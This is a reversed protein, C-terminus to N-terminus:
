IILHKEFEWASRVMDDITLTAEWGLATKAKEVEAYLVPADGKRRKGIVFPVKVGNAKEFAVILELVSTGNGTGLNFVEFYSRQENQLLRKCAAVHAKALDVVHIYDRISTGDATPYDNGFITLLPQKGKVTQTIYPMLNNPTGSPSEGILGSTHAGVPNFYRLAIANIGSAAAVKECIEEGMQKTSGYASLAKQLPSTETVPLVSPNGYVTASSSFVFGKINVSEMCGLVNMLSLLNNHFYKLPKKVSEGVAKHAAFHIVADIQMEKEFLKELAKKECVDICYFMPRQGTITEISDLVTMQANSLNDAIVVEYGDQLLEVATHSGIYGMGGTVLIKQKM